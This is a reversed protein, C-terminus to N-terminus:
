AAININGWNLPLMHAMYSTCLRPGGTRTVPPAGFSHIQLVSKIKRNKFLQRNDMIFLHENGIAEKSENIHAAFLLKWNSGKLILPKM